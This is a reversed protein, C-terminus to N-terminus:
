IRLSASLKALMKEGIGSVQLLDALRSYPRGAVITAALKKSIGKVAVLEAESAENISVGAAKAKAKAVVPTAVVEPASEPATQVEVVAPVTPEKAVPALALTQFDRTLYGSETWERLMLTVYWDGALETSAVPLLLSQAEQQAQGALRGLDVHALQVGAFAGGQYPKTLAWVQLALSGSLNDASRPNSIAPVQLQLQNDQWEAHVQGQLQPLVFHTPQPFHVRDHEVVGSSLSLSLQYDTQGAPVWAPVTGQVYSVGEADAELQALALEAVKIPTAATDTTSTAWLQLALSEETTESTVALEAQLSIVDGQLAYSQQGIFRAPATFAM